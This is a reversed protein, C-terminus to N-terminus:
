WPPRSSQGDDALKMVTRVLSSIPTLKLARLACSYLGHAAPVPPVDPVAQEITAGAKLVGNAPLMMGAFINFGANVERTVFESYGCDTSVRAFPKPCATFVVAWCNLESWPSM